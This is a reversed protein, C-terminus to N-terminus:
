RRIKYRGALLDNIGKKELEVRESYEKSEHVQEILKKFHQNTNVLIDEAVIFGVEAGSKKFNCITSLEESNLEQFEELQDYLLKVRDKHYDNTILAIKDWKEEISKKIMEILETFTSTSGEELDIQCQDIGRDMLEDAMISADSPRNKESQSTTVLTIEPFFKGIEAAAIVRARAGNMSGTFDSASYSPSRYGRNEDCVVGGSLIFVADPLSGEFEKVLINKYIEQKPIPIFKENM